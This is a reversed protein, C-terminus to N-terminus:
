MREQTPIGLISLGNKLVIKFAEAIALRYASEPGDGIVQEHAYFNNFSAALETLYTTIYHPAYERGAREVIDPFRYLLKEVEHMESREAHADGKKGAKELLSNTRAYAYQLYVGSDGETSVSKEFDFVIDGGISSKLIMYKLAAVAIEDTATNGKEEVAKKIDSMIEEISIVDGTRSSMKGSPLRLMGHPLHKTMDRLDPYIFKMAALLVRFYERIENGTVVVSKTYAYKQFKAKALGLEKAEYTPLGESNIFVRTHLSPDYEEAHFVIAGDSKQFIEGVHDRVVREGIKATDSEFFYLDFKTGLIKYMTEFYELSAKRGADYLKNIEADTREYIKKNLEIIEQKAGADEDYTKNGYVYPDETIGKQMAWVAKAVHLGVDGQYVAEKVEAGNWRFLNAISTGITMPMLHGIHLKKFPNPDTHEVIVKEGAFIASKGFDGDKEIIEGISKKFFDKQLYFNIFGPGAIEVREVADPKHLDIYDKLLHAVELPAMRFQRATALAANTTYDGNSLDTPHEIVIEERHPREGEVPKQMGKSIIGLAERVLKEIVAKM